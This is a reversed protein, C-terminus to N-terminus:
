RISLDPRREPSPNEKKSSKLEKESLEKIMKGKLRRIDFERVKISEGTSKIIGKPKVDIHVCGNLYYYLTIATGKFGTAKDEVETDLINLPLAVTEMTAGVVRKETIWYVDLPEQTKPNLGAPQFLYHINQNMDISLVTLMGKLGVVRDTIIKGLNLIKQNEM